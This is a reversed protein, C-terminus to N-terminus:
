ARVRLRSEKFSVYAEAAERAEETALEPISDDYIVQINSADFVKTSDLPIEVRALGFEVYSANDLRM